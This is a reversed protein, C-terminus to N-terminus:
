NKGQFESLKAALRKKLEERDTKSDGVTAGDIDHKSSSGNNVDGEDSDSEDDVHPVNNLLSSIFSNELSLKTKLLAIEDKEQTKETECDDLEMKKMNQKSNIKKARSKNALIAPAMM